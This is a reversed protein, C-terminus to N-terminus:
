KLSITLVNFGRGHRSLNLNVFNENELGLYTDDAESEIVDTATEFSDTPAVLNMRGPHIILFIGGVPLGQHKRWIDSMKHIEEDYM